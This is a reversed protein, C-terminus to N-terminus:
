YRVFWTSKKEENTLKVEGGTQPEVFLPQYDDVLLFNIAHGGGDRTMYWMEAVTISQGKKGSQSSHLAQMFVRYSSSFNDCDHDETWLMGMTDDARMKKLFYKRFNRLVWRKTPVSYDVDSIFIKAHPVGIWQFTKNEVVQSDVM